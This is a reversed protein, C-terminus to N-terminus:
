GMLRREDSEPLPELDSALAYYLRFPHLSIVKLVESCEPCEVELGVKPNVVEVLGGCVPCQTVELTEM